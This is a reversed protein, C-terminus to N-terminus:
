HGGRVSFPVLAFCNSSRGGMCGRLIVDMRLLVQWLLMEGCPCSVNSLLEIVPSGYLRASDRGHPPAGAVLANRWL